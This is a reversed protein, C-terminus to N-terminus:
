EAYGGLVIENEKMMANQPDYGTITAPYSENLAIEFIDCSDDKFWEMVAEATGKDDYVGVLNIFDGYPEGWTHRTVLYLTKNDM